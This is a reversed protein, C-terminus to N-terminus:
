RHISTLFGAMPYTASKRV